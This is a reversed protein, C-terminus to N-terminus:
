FLDDIKKMLSKAKRQEIKNEPSIEATANPDGDIVEKLLKEFLARDDEKKAYFEAMLVKTGFYTPARKLSADFHEKSKKMDGGAFSPTKSYYAGLYRDAAGHFYAPAIKQVTDMTKKIMDKYKLLTTFGKAVGWKGYNAAFWYLAPAATQDLVSIAEEHKAGAEMRKQFEKSNALLARKAYVIGREHANLFAKMATDNKDKDFALTGDAVLYFARSLRTWIEYSEPKIKAASQYAAIAAKLMNIDQRQEWQKDGRTREAAFLAEPSKLNKMGTVDKKPLTTEHDAASTSGCGVGAITLVLLSAGAVFWEFGTAKTTMDWQGKKEPSDRQTKM